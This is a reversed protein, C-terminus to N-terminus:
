RLDYDMRITKDSWCWAYWFSSTIWGDISKFFIYIGMCSVSIIRINSNPWLGFRYCCRCWTYAFILQGAKMQLCTTCVIVLGVFFYCYAGLLNSCTRDPVSRNWCIRALRNFINCFCFWVAQAYVIFSYEPPALSQLVYGKRDSIDRLFCICIYM